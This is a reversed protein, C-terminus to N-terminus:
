NLRAWIKRFERTDAGSPFGVVVLVGNRANQINFHNSGMEDAIELVRGIANMSSARVIKKLIIGKRSTSRRLNTREPKGAQDFALKSFGLAVGGAVAIPIIGTLNAVVM